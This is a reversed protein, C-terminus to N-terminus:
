HCTYGTPGTDGGGGGGLVYTWVGDVYQLFSNEPIPGRQIPAERISAADFIAFQATDYLATASVTTNSIKFGSM